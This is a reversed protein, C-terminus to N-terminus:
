PMRAFCLRCNDDTEDREFEVFVLESVLLFLAQCTELTSIEFTNGLAKHALDFYRNAYQLPVPKPNNKTPGENMPANIAGVAVVAYYLSRFTSSRKSPTLQAHPSWLQLCRERFNSEDLFPHIYHKNAFYSDIFYRETELNHKTSPRTETEQPDGGATAPSPPFTTNEQAKSASTASDANYMLNVISLQSNQLHGPSQEDVVSDQDLASAGPERSCSRARTRARAFLTNLFALNSSGGYFETGQTHANVGGLGSIEGEGGKPLSEEDRSHQTEVDGMSSVDLDDMTFREAMCSTLATHAQSQRGTSPSPM